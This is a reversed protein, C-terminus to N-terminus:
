PGTSISQERQPRLFAFLVEPMHVSSSIACALRTFRTFRPGASGSGSGLGSKGGRDM